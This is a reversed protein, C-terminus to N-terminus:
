RILTASGREEVQEGRPSTYQLLYYYTGGPVQKGENNKRGNWGQAPDNTQFVQEGWRNWISLDFQKYGELYGTGMFVDNVSDDNPSFANPMYFTVTPVVDLTKVISDQCGEPHTVILVVEQRGTDRFEYTPNQDLSYTGDGFDYYWRSAGSSLDTFQVTSNFNDLEEPSYSFDAVPEPDIIILNEFITDTQCGIPSTIDLAISYTGEKTFTHEPSFETSTTGDGFDWFLEYDENVPTSLNNFIISGPACGEFSSPAVIIIAPVPFYTILKRVSDQCGNNDTIRLDVLRNGAETYEYAPNQSSSGTGNGFSWNWNTITSGSTISADTFQVPGAICTDYEYSFDPVLEPYIEVVVRATDGCDTGPNLALYGDYNGPGPFSINPSWSYILTDKDGLDFSWFFEEIFSTSSANPIFVNPDACSKVLYDGSNLQPLDDIEAFVTPDCNTVNFQFDRRVTSLLQGNRFENVCVGVVFQGITAPLGEILGTNPDINIDAQIGLPDLASYFPAIFSVEDYPPPSEPDPALGNPATPDNFNLGGGLFPSCFEYVLQDGDADTASHDFNFALGSCIVIPPFSNFVPSSNCVEQSEPTLEMFYSAGSDGPNMINSISNNRCCRQYTIFYSSDSVPLELVPFVYVGKQVCVNNPVIICPDLLIDTGIEINTVEPPGLVLNLFVEDDGLKYISVTADFSGFPGSDFDAGGGQCDRYINMYFQYSRSNTSPDGNTWGLCEYTIEGGIIHAAYLSGSSSLFIGLIIGILFLLRYKGTTKVYNKRWLVISITM